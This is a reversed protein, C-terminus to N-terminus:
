SRTMPLMGRRAGLGIYPRGTPRHVSFNDVTPRFAVPRGVVPCRRGPRRDYAPTPAAAGALRTPVPLGHNRAPHLPLLSDGSICLLISLFVLRRALAGYLSDIAMTEM